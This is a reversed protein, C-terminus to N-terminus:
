ALDGEADVACSELLKTLAPLGDRIRGALVRPANDYYRGWAPRAEPPISEPMAAAIDIPLLGLRRFANRLQATGTFTVWGFGERHLREILLLILARMAGPAAGSFHGIEVIANRDVVMGTRASIAREIPADLYHEVFLRQRTSRIGFAGCIRGGPLELTFLRPMFAEIQAGFTEAFRRAIFEEATRRTEFAHEILVYHAARVVESAPGHLPIARGFFRTVMAHMASLHPGDCDVDPVAHTNPLSSDALM